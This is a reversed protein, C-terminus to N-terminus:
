GAVQTGTGKRSKPAAVPSMRGPHTGGLLGQLRGHLLLTFLSTLLAKIANFPLSGSVLFAYAAEGRLGYIPFFIYLNAASTVALMVLSGVALAPWLRRGMHWYWVAAAAVLSAGCTLNAAVGLLGAEDKGSVLFLVCKVVEALIGAVPGLSFGALLAPVDGADYQLFPPLGPIPFEFWMLLFGLAGLFGVLVLTRVYSRTGPHSL